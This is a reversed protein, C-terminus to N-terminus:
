KATVVELFARAAHSSHRDPNTILMLNRPTPAVPLATIVGSRLHHSVVLESLAAAYTASIAVASLIAENSPLVLAIDLNDPAIGWKHLGAMFSARTGSGEERMIWRLSIIDEVSLSKQTALPHLSSVVTLLKDCGIASIELDNDKIDGEIFGLDCLGQATAQSVENTNAIILELKISPYLAHYRAIFPPLWYAAITQSAFLRLSGRKLAGIEELTKEAMHARQLTARAESLFIRGADNLRIQRGVRDFLSVSYRNEVVRIANSLASPTLRLTEAAKTLHESEAVAVFIRLQELTIM